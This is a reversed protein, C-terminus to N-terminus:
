RDREGQAGAATYSHDRNGVSTLVADFAGTFKTHRDRLLFRLADVRQDFNMLLNRVQRVVWAGRPHATVGALHVRRTALEILLLVYIRKLFV